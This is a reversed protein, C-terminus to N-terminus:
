ENRQSEPEESAEEASSVDNGDQKSEAREIRKEIRSVLNISPAIARTNKGLKSPIQSERFLTIDSKSGFPHAATIDLIRGQLDVFTQVKWGYRTQHGPKYIYFRKRDELSKPQKICIPFTDVAGITDKLPGALIKSRFNSPWSRLYALRPDLISLIRAVYNFISGVAVEFELALDQTTPYRRLWKLTLLL